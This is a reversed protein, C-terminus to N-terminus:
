ITGRINIDINHEKLIDYIYDTHKSPHMVLWKGSRTSHCYPYHSSIEYGCHGIVSDNPSSIYYNNMRAVFEQIPVCEACRYPHTSFTAFISKLSETKWIGTSVSFYYYTNEIKHFLEENYVPNVGGTSLRVQDANTQEMFNMIDLIINEQPYDVMINMDHALLVYKTDIKDLIKRMRECYVEFDDYEIVDYKNYKTRIYEANNFAIIPTIYPVYKNLQKLHIDLVDKYDEHSYLLYTINEM